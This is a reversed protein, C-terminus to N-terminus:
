GKRGRNIVKFRVYLAMFIINIAVVAVCIASAILNSELSYVFSEMYIGGFLQAFCLRSVFVTLIETIACCIIFALWSKGSIKGKLSSCVKEGDAETLYLRVYATERPLQVEDTYGQKSIIDRVHMLKCIKNQSNFVAVDYAIYKLDDNVRLILCKKDMRESVIYQYIYKRVAAEPEYVISVGTTENVVRVGRGAARLDFRVKLFIRPLIFAHMAIFVVAVVALLVYWLAEM